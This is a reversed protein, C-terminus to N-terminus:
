LMVWLSHLYLLGCMYLLVEIVNVLSLATLSKYFLLMHGFEECSAM